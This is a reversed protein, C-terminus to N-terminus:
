SPDRVEVIDFSNIQFEVGSTLSVSTVSSTAFLIASNDHFALHTCTGSASANTGTQASLTIKRGSTDGNAITFDGSTVTYEGLTVGSIAAYSAPESSCAAVRVCNTEIDELLKDLTADRITPM